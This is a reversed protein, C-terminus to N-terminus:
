LKLAGETIGSIFMRQFTIFILIIPVISMAIAAFVHVYNVGAFEQNFYTMALPITWRNPNTILILATLYDNWVGLFTLIISTAFAPKSLPLIIRWMIGFLTSGDLSAAEDLDRSLTNFFSLFVLTPISIGSATYAAILGIRTDYLGLTLELKYLAIYTVQLPVILPLILLGYVLLKGSFQYRSMVYGALFAIIIALVITTSTIIISNLYAISLHGTTWAILYNGWAWHLPPLWFNLFFGSQSKLSGFILWLLPYGMIISAIILLVHSGLAKLQLKTRM